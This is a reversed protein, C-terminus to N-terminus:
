KKKKIDRPNKNKKWFLLYLIPLIGVTNIILIVVYWAKQNNRSARWMAIAKWVMDWLALVIIVTWALVTLNLVM